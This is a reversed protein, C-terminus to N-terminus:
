AAVGQWNLKKGCGSCAAASHDVPAKCNLCYYSRAAPEKKGKVEIFPQDGKPPKVKVGEIIQKPLKPARVLHANIRGKAGCACKIFGKLRRTATLEACNPCQYIQTKM